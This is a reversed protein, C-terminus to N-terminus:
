ARLAGLPRPRKWGWPLQMLGYGPTSAQRAFLARQQRYTWRQSQYTKASSPLPQPYVRAQQHRPRNALRRSM